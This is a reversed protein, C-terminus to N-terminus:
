SQVIFSRSLLIGTILFWQNEEHMRIQPFNSVGFPLDDLFVTRM